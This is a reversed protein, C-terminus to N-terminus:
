SKSTEFEGLTLETNYPHSGWLRAKKAFRCETKKKIKEFNLLTQSNEADYLVFDCVKKAVDAEQTPTMFGPGFKGKFPNSLRFDWSSPGYKENDHTSTSRSKFLYSGSSILHNIKYKPM